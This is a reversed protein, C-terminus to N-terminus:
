GYLAASALFVVQEVSLTRSGSYHLQLPDSYAMRRVNDWKIQLKGELIAAKIDM